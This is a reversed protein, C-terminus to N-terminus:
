TFVNNTRAGVWSPASSVWPAFFKIFVTHGNTVEEYNDPTLSVVEYASAWRSVIAALLLLRLMTRNPTINPTRDVEHVRALKEGRVMTLM